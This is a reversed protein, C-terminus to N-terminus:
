PDEYEIHSRKEIVDEQIKMYEQIFAAWERQYYATNRILWIVLTDEGEMEMSVKFNYKGLPYMPKLNLELDLSPDLRDVQILHKGRLLNFLVPPSLDEEYIRKPPKIPILKWLKKPDKIKSELIPFFECFNRVAMIPFLSKDDAKGIEWGWSGHSMKYIKVAELYCETVRQYEELDCYIIGLNLWAVRFNPDIALAEECCRIARKYRKLQYYTACLNLWALNRIVPSSTRHYKVSEKFCTLAMKFRNLNYYARAIKDWGRASEPAHKLYKEYCKIAEQFRKQRFYTDGNEFFNYDNKQM